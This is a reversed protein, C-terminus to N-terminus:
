LKKEEDISQIFGLDGNFVGVGENEGSGSVRFWKLSYNNKTQMVKDGERFVLDRSTKEKKDKEPPNFMEQLSNNLNIVGLTGKRM